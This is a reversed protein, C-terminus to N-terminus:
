KQAQGCGADETWEEWDFIGFSMWRHCRHASRLCVCECESECEYECSECECEWRLRLCDFHILKNILKNSSPVRNHDAYSLIFSLLRDAFLNQKSAYGISPPFPFLSTPYFVSPTLSIGFFATLKTSFEVWSRISNKISRQMLEFVTSHFFSSFWSLSFSISNFSEQDSVCRRSVKTRSLPIDM